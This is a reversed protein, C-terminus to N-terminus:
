ISYFMAVFADLAAAFTLLLFAASRFFRFLPHVRKLSVYTFLRGAPSSPEWEPCRATKELITSERV